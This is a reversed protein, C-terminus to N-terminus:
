GASSIHWASFVLAFVQAMGPTGALLLALWQWWTLQQTNGAEIAHAVKRDQEDVATMVQAVEEAGTQELGMRGLYSFLPHQLQQIAQAFAAKDGNQLLTLLQQDVNTKAETDM